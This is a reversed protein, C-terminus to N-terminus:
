PKPRRRPVPSWRYTEASATMLKPRDRWPPKPLILVTFASGRGGILAPLDPLGTLAQGSLGLDCTRLRILSGDAFKVAVTAWTQRRRAPGLTVTAPRWGTRQAAEARRYWRICDFLAAGAFPLFFLMATVPEGGILLSFLVLATCLVVIVAVITARRFRRAVLTAARGAGEVARGPPLWEAFDPM